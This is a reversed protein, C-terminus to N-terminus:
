MGGDVRIIQGTVYSSYDSALMMIMNAIEKPQGVRKLSCKDIVQQYQAETMTSILKTDVVGPAVANVRINYEALEKALSKVLAHIAAKTSSYISQGVNGDLGLYSGTFVVSGGREKMMLRGVYQSMRLHSFFNIDMLEHAKEISLMPLLADYSTGANNVLIDIKRNERRIGSIATKMGRDDTMDFYVPEISVENEASLQALYKELDDSQNRACAWVNAGNEAFVQVTAKGIGSSAGTIIANKGALIRNHLM